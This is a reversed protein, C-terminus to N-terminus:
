LGVGLRAKKAILQSQELEIKKLERKWNSLRKYYGTLSSQSKNEPFRPIKNKFGVRKATRELEIIHKPKGM